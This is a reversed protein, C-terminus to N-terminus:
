FDDVANRRRHSVVLAAGGAVALVLGGAVPIQSSPIGTIPVSSRDNTVTVTDITNNALTGDNGTVSAVYGNDVSVNSQDQSFASSAGAEKVTYAAGENLNSFTATGGHGLTVDVSATGDDGATFTGGDAGSVTYPYEAGPQLGSFSVTFGFSSSTNGQNGTVQKSLVLTANDKASNVFAGKSVKTETGAKQIRIDNVVSEGDVQAVGGHTIWTVQVVVRYTANEENYTYLPDETTPNETLDFFYLGPGSFDVGAFADSALVTGTPATSGAQAKQTFTVQGGQALTNGNYTVRGTGEGVLFEAGQYTLTYSLEGVPHVTAPMQGWTKSVVVANGPASPTTAASVVGVALAPTAPVAAIAAAAAIAAITKRPEFRM